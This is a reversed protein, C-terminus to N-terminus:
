CRIEINGIVFPMGNLRDYNLDLDGSVTVSAESFQKYADRTQGIGYLNYIIVSRDLPGILRLQNLELEPLCFLMKLCVHM